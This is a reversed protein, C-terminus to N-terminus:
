TSQLETLRREVFAREPQTRALKYTQQYHRIALAKNGLRRHFDALTAHYLYYGPMAKKNKLRELELLGAEPGDVMSLAVARNLRVIPSPELELLGDYFSLIRSWDTSEYSRALAHCSAIGAQLHHTTLETGRGAQDLQSFAQQILKQDWLSRDQDAILLLNGERDLRTAFRSAHFLMLALLAHTKPADGVPHEALLLALRIAEDCVDKRILEEGQSASYGENFMFYLVDLVADLRDALQRRDPLVFRIKEARIKRKARVLRQAITSERTLFARAIEPVSFGCLAKLVLAIQIDRPFAPDCCAFMLTLQEDEFPSRGAPSTQMQSELQQTMQSQKKRFVSRHRLVDLAKHRAVQLIWGAPNRPIGSFPWQQLAKILTEQVVDEALDLHEFGFVGALISVIQGSKRRFLHAVLESVEEQNEALMEIRSPKM